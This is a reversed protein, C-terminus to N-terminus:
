NWDLQSAHSAQRLFSVRTMKDRIGRLWIAPDSNSLPDLCTFFLRVDADGGAFFRDKSARILSRLYPVATNWDLFDGNEKKYVELMFYAVMAYIRKSCAVAGPLTMFVCGAVLAMAEPSSKIFHEDFFNAATKKLAVSADSSGEPTM